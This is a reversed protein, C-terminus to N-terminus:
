PASTPGFSTLFYTLYYLADSFTHKASTLDRHAAASRGVSRQGAGGCSGEAMVSQIALGNRVEYHQYTAVGEMGRM